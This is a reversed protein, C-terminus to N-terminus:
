ALLVDLRAELAVLDRWGYQLGPLEACVDYGLGIRVNGIVVAGLKRGYFERARALGEAVVLMLRTAGRHRLERLVARFLAAALSSGRCNASVWIELLAGDQPAYLGGDAYGLVAGDPGVGVVVCHRPNAIDRAAANPDPTIAALCNATVLDAYVERAAEAHLSAISDADAATARRVTWEPCPM